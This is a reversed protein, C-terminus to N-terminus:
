DNPIEECLTHHKISYTNYNTHYLGCGNCKTVTMRIGMSLLVKMVM